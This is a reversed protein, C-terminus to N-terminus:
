KRLRFNVPLTYYASIPKDAMIVPNWTHTEAFRNLVKVVEDSLMKDPSGLVIINIMKGTEDIRFRTIVKGELGMEVAVAPYRIHKHVYALLHEATCQDPNAEASCGPLTPLPDVQSIEEASIQATLFLPLGLLFLSLLRKM